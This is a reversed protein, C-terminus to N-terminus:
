LWRPAFYLTLYIPVWSAVVFYWYLANESVDVLRKPEVHGTFVLATLLTLGATFSVVTRDMEIAALEPRDLYARLFDDTVVLGGDADLDLRDIIGRLKLSGVQAELMLELGGAVTVGNM